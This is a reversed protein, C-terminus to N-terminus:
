YVIQLNFACASDFWTYNIPMLASVDISSFRCCPMTISYVVAHLHSDNIYRSQMDMSNSSNVRSASMSTRVSVIAQHLLDFHEQMNRAQAQFEVSNSPDQM